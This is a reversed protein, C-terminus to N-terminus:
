PKMGLAELLESWQVAAVEAGNARTMLVTISRAADLVKRREDYRMSEASNLSAPEAEALAEPLRDLIMRAVEEAVERDAPPGSHSVMVPLDRIANILGIATAERATVGSSTPSPEPETMAAALEEAIESLQRTTADGLHKWLWTGVSEGDEWADYIERAAIHAVEPDVKALVLLVHAAAFEAVMRAMRQMDPEPGFPILAMAGTVQARSAMYRALAAATAETRTPPYPAIKDLRENIERIKVEDPM